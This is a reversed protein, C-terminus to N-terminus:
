ITNKKTIPEIKTETPEIGWFDDDTNTQTDTSGKALTPLLDTRLGQQEKGKL